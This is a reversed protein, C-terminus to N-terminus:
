QIVVLVSGGEGFVQQGPLGAGGGRRRGAGPRGRNGAQGSTLLCQGPGPGLAGAQDGAEVKGGPGALVGADDGEGGTDGRHQALVARPGLGDGAM